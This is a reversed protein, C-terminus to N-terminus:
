CYSKDVNTVIGVAPLANLFSNTKATFLPSFLNTEPLRCLEFSLLSSDLM